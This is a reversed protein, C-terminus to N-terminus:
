RKVASDMKSPLYTSFHVLVKMRGVYKVYVESFGTEVFFDQTRRLKELCENELSDAGDVERLPEIERGGHM